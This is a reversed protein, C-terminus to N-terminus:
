QGARDLKDWIEEIIPNDAPDFPNALENDILIDPADVWQAHGDTYAVNLGTEHASRVYKPEHILDAVLAKLERFKSFDVGSVGNRRAYGARSDRDLVPPWPNENTNRLHFEDTQVPCFLQDVEQIIEYKVLPGFNQEYDRGDFIVYNYQWAGEDPENNLPPFRDGEDTYIMFAAAVNRLRNACQTRRASRKALQLSPVLIAILLAIIAIVVLLEILTFARTRHRHTYMSDGIM